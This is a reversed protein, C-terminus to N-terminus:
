WGSWRAALAALVAIGVTETRLIRPGLSIPSFGAGSLASEESPSFGAEPGIALTVTGAPASEPLSAFGNSARPSLMLRLEGGKLPPLGNLWAQVDIAASVGPVRNRGCQECAAHVLAQWHAQRRMAREASLRVVGREATLPVVNGVGLEVAKEILWDMKDGGAVGQALTISYPAEAEREERKGLQVTAARKGIEILKAPFQGGNGDFLIIEDSSQLRLVHIHRVVDKPLSLLLDPTLPTAVHFRPM